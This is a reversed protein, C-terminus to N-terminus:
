RRRGCVRPLHARQKEYYKQHYDEADYWPSAPLVPVDSKGLAKALRSAVAEQEESQAWVASM